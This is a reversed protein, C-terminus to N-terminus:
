YKSNKKPIFIFISLYINATKYYPFYTVTCAIFYCKYNIICFFSGSTDPLVDPGLIYLLCGYCKKLEKRSLVKKVYGL